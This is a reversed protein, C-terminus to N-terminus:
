KRKSLLENRNQYFLSMREHSHEIENRPTEEKKKKFGNTCIINRPDQKDQFWLIRAQGKKFEHTPKAWHKLSRTTQQNRIIGNKATRDMLSVLGTAEDPSSRHLERLFARVDKNQHVEFFYISHERGKCYPYLELDHLSLVNCRGTELRISSM